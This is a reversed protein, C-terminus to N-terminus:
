IDLKSLQINTELIATFAQLLNSETLKIKFYLHSDLEEFNKLQDLIDNFGRACFSSYYVYLSRYLERILVIQCSKVVPFSYNIHTSLIHVSQTIIELSIISQLIHIILVDFSLSLTKNAVSTDRSLVGFHCVTMHTIFNMLGKTKQVKIQSVCALLLAFKSIFYFLLM